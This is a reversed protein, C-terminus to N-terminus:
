RLGTARAKERRLSCALLLELAREYEFVRTPEDETHMYFTGEDSGSEFRIGDRYSAADQFYLTGHDGQALNKGIFVLPQLEPILMDEDVYQVSFYTTQIQLESPAVPESYSKLERAEFRM